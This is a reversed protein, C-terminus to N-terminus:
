FDSISRDSELDVRSHRSWLTSPGSMQGPDTKCTRRKYRDFTRFPVDAPIQIARDAKGAGVAHELLSQHFAWAALSLWEDKCGSQEELPWCIENLAKRKDDMHPIPQPWLARAREFLERGNM